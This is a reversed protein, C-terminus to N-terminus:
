RSRRTYSLVLLLFTIAGLLGVIQKVVLTEPVVGGVHVRGRPTSFWARLRFWLNSFFIRM